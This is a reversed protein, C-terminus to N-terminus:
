VGAALPVARVHRVEGSLVRRGGDILLAGTDADVDAALVDEVDGNPLELRIRRGTTAQRARWEAEDFTAARLAEVRAQLRPLFADLVEVPEISRGGAAESLSTMAGILGAPFDAADWDVNIGMGIVVRPDATGLGDTEGLVGGLKLWRDAADLVLDNPWKLRITGDPLAAAAEAAEAMALSAVAALRWARGAELWKPRFGLSLLLGKGPPALWTRGERGRGGSQEDAVALCVEPTGEALWTRVVDNTSGVVAFREQRSLFPGPV